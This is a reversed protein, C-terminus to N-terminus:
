LSTAIYDNKFLQMFQQDLYTDGIKFYRPQVGFTKFGLKEYLHIAAKNGAIVSLQIQEIRDLTFAYQLAHRILKEGINQGRYKGDVYVQVIEGRHMARQRAMRNFGTIGIMREEDFAGFMVHDPSGNEIFTEFTFKPNLVEEEYTSGFFQSANKLCSLRIERYIASQHPQLKRIIISM